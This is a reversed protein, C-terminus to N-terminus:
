GKKGKKQKTKRAVGFSVKRRKLQPSRSRRKQKIEGGSKGGSEDQQWSEKEVRQLMFEAPKQVEQNQEM